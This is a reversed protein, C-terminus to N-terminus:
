RGALLRAAEPKLSEAYAIDSETAEPTGDILATQYPIDENLSAAKWGIFEHSLDSVEKANDDRLSELISDVTSIEDATFVSVNPDRLAVVRKQVRNFHLRQEERIVQSEKLKTLIPLMAKPAPGNPLKKYTHGTISKGTTQYAMFDSYFMIKNLKVAGFKSDNESKRAVYLLLEIFKEDNPAPTIRIFM